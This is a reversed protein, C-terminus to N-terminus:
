GRGIEDLLDYDGFTRPLASPSGSIGDSVTQPNRRPLDITPHADAPRAFADAVQALAWLARLEANLEPHKCAVADVDPRSGNRLQDTLQGLLRALLEDRDSDSSTSAPSTM